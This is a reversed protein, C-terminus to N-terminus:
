PRSCGSPPAPRTTVHSHASATPSLATSRAVTDTAYYRPTVTDAAYYRPLSSHSATPSAVYRYSRGPELARVPRVPSSRGYAPEYSM